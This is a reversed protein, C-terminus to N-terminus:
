TLPNASLKVSLANGDLKTLELKRLAKQADKQRVYQVFGYGMSSLQGDATKKEAITAKYM